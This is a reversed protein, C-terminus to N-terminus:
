MKKEREKGKGKYGESKVGEPRKYNPNFNKGKYNGYPSTNKSQPKEYTTRSPGAVSSAQTTNIDSYPNRGTKPGGKRYPNDDLNLDGQERASCYIEEVLGIPELAPNPVSENPNRIAFTAKRITLDYRFAVVWSRQDKFIKIVKKRHTELDNAFANYKYVKRCTEVFTDFNEGWEFRSQSWEGPFPHGRYKEIEKNSKKYDTHNDSAAQQWDKNFITLPLSGQLLQMNKHFFLPLTFSNADPTKGSDFKLGGESVITRPPIIITHNNLDPIPSDETFTLDIIQQSKKELEKIEDLRAQVEQLKKKRQEENMQASLKQIKPLVTTAGFFECYEKNMKLIAERMADKDPVSPSDKAKEGTEKEKPLDKDNTKAGQPTEDQERNPSKSQNTMQDKPANPNKDQGRGLYSSILSQKNYKAGSSETNDHPTPDANGKSADNKTNTGSQDADKNGNNTEKQPNSVAEALPTISNIRATAESIANSSM